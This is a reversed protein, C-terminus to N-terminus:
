GDLEKRNNPESSTKFSHGVYAGLVGLLGAGITTLLRHAADDLMRDFFLEAVVTVLLVLCLTAALIVAIVPAADFGGNRRM